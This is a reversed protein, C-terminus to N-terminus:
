PQWTVGAVGTGNNSRAGIIGAVRTGHWSSPTQQCGAFTTTQLDGATIWDGPDAADADRGDGDNAAAASTIFDYGPLLRGGVSASQLDPHDYLVGTDLFAVVVDGSGTTIDWAHEADIASPAVSPAQLYWQQAYLLDDPVAHLYRRRDLEAYEVASDAELRALTGEISEGAAEPEVEMVQLRAGLATTRRTGIGTRSAVAKLMDDAAQTRVSAKDQARLKVIIRPESGFDALSSPQKRSGDLEQAAAITTFAAAALALATLSRLNM